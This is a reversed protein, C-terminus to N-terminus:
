DLCIELKSECNDLCKDRAGAVQGACTAVCVFAPGACRKELATGTRILSLLSLLITLLSM